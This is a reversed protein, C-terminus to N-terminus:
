QNNLDELYYKQYKFEQTYNVLSVYDSVFTKTIKLQEKKPMIQFVSLFIIFLGVILIGAYLNHRKKRVNSVISDSFDLDDTTMGKFVSSLVDENIKKKIM